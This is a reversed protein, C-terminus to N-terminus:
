VVDYWMPEDDIPEFGDGLALDDDGMALGGAPRDDVDAYHLFFAQFLKFYEERKPSNPGFVADWDRKALQHFAQAPPTGDGKLRAIIQRADLTLPM